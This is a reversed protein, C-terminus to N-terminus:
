PTVLYAAWIGAGVAHLIYPLSRMAFGLGTPSARRLAVLREGFALFVIWFFTVGAFAEKWGDSRSGLLLWAWLLAVVMPCVVAIVFCVLRKLKLGDSKM